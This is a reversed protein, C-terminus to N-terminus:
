EVWKFNDFLPEITSCLQQRTEKDIMSYAFDDSRLSEDLTNKNRAIQLNYNKVGKAALAKALKLVREPNTLNWHVTTRCEYDVGSNLLVDLSQWNAQAAGDVRIIADGFEPLDKVDFGVWDVNPLVARFRKPASGGTHLGVKYGMAKVAEIAPVLASQLLPEGGSFVVAELLGQRKQLFEILEQWDYSQDAKTPILEPNHCYRCRWACGQCYVVCSLHNPYDITTLPTLGGVRLPVDRLAVGQDISSISQNVKLM